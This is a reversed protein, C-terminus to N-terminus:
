YPPCDLQDLARRYCLMELTRLKNTEATRLTWTECEYLAVLWVLTKLLKLKISKHLSRDKWLANIEHSGDAKQEIISGLYKFREVQDLKVGRCQISIQEPARTAVMTKTKKTSIELQYESSVRDVEDLLPREPSTAILVIDDAFRLNNLKRGSVNVGVWSLDETSQRMVEESYFNFLMPSVLCGQRVGKEITFWVSLEQEVRVAAEQGSYLNKLINVVSGNVGDEETRGM